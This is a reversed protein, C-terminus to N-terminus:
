ARLGKGLKFSRKIVARCRDKTHDMINIMESQPMIRLDSIVAIQTRMCARLDDFVFTHDTHRLM